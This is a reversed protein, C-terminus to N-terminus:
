IRYVMSNGDCCIKSSVSMGICIEYANIDPLEATASFRICIDGKFLSFMVNFSSASVKQFLFVTPSPTYLMTDALPFLFISVVNFQSM